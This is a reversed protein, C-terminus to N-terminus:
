NPTLTPTPAPALTLPAGLLRDAEDLVLHACEDIKWASTADVHDAVRGPTGVLLAVGKRLRAQWVLNNPFSWPHHACPLYIESPEAEIV